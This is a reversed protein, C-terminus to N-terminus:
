PRPFQPRLRGGRVSSALGTAWVALFVLLLPLWTGLLSRFMALSHELFCAVIVFDLLAVIAAMALAARLPSWSTPRAFYSSAIWVFLFPAAVGHLFLATRPNTGAILAGMAAACMAWGIIAHTTIRGLSRSTAGLTGARHETVVAALVITCAVALYIAHLWHFTRLLAIEVGIWTAMAFGGVIAAGGAAPKRALVLIGALTNIAGVVGALLLGPVLFDVFPSYQLLKLPLGVFSGDPALVLETGGWISTLGAFLCLTVLLGRM